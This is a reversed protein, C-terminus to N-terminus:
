LEGVKISISATKKLTLIPELILAMLALEVKRRTHKEM